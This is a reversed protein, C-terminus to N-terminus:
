FPQIIYLHLYPLLLNKRMLSDRIQPKLVKSINYTEEEKYTHSLNYKPPNARNKSEEKAFEIVTILVWGTQNLQTQGMVLM